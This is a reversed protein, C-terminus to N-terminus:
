MTEFALQSGIRQGVIDLGEGYGEGVQVDGHHQAEVLERSGRGCRRRREGVDRFPRVLPQWRRRRLAVAGGDDGQPAVHSASIQRRDRGIPMALSLWALPSM